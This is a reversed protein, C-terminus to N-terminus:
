VTPIIIEMRTGEGNKSSATISCNMKALMKKVIVLGLGTGEIKTTFFPRFLNRATDDDMGCGNDEFTLSIQQNQKQRLSITIIKNDIGELAAVANTTLNLLVQLFARPDIMGILANDPHQTALMIYNKALDKEALQVLKDLLSKM